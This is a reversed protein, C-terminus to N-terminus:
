VIHLIPWLTVYRELHAQGNHILANLNETLASLERPYVGALETQHGLEIERVEGAVQRLPKLSWSLIVGQVLLLVLASVLLWGWLSRRFGAVQNDFGRRTEAVQFTYYRYTGASIEWSVTFNLSFLPTDDMADIQQFILQGPVPLSPLPPLEMGLLSMSRWILAGDRDLVQAYLDSGPTSFRAEPLTNPLTLQGDVASDAAGLLMFVQAQLREQVSVLASERFAQDLALGTLGLFAILM